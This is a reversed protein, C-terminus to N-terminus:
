TRAGKRTAPKASAEPSKKAADQPMQAMRPKAPTATPEGVQTSGAHVQQKLAVTWRVSGPPVLLDCRSGLRILGMRVGKIAPEGGSIYPVIRRAVTGAIQIVKVRGLATDLVTVVRENRDSDKDFAPIHGGAIHTVAVVKGDLPFRNVHVDKPSMFISLRDCRGLDADDVQDLRVVRGDAPSAVGPAAAREPDRFFVLFFLEVLLALVALALLWLGGFNAWCFAAVGAALLPMALWPTSGRAFRGVGRRRRPCCKFPATRWCSPPTEAGGM